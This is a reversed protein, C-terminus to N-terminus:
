ATWESKHCCEEQMGRGRCGRVDEMRCGGQEATGGSVTQKHSMMEGVSEEVDVAVATM